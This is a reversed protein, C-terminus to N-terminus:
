GPYDTADLGVFSLLEDVLAASESPALGLDDAIETRSRGLSMDELLRRLPAAGEPAFSSGLRGLARRPAPFDFLRAGGAVARIADVTTTGRLEKPIITAAGAVAGEVLTRPDAMSALLLCAVTPCAERIAPCADVGREDGLRDDVLAVDPQSRSIAPLAARADVAEGVVSMDPQREVGSLMGERVVDDGALGFVRIVRPDRSTAVASM